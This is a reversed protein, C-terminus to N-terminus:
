PPSKLSVMDRAGTEEAAKWLSRASEYAVGLLKAARYPNVAMKTLYVFLVDTRTTSGMLARLRLWPNRSLIESRPVIKTKRPNSAGGFRLVEIFPAFDEELGATEREHDTLDAAIPESLTKSLRKLPATMRRDGASEATKLLGALIARERASARDTWQEIKGSLREANLLESHVRMWDYLLSLTKRDKAADAVSALLTREPDPLDPASDVDAHVAIGLKRWAKHDFNQPTTIMM